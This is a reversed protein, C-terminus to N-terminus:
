PILLVPISTRHTVQDTVSAELWAGLGRRHNPGLVILDSGLSRATSLIADDIDAETAHAVLGKAAVGAAGLEEVAADVIGAVADETEIESATDFASADADVHLVDVASGTLLALARVAALVRHRHASADIAALIRAWPFTTDNM